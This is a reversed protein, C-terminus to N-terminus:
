MGPVGANNWADLQAAVQLMTARDGSVLANNVMTRAETLSVPYIVFEAAVNLGAAVGARLLKRAAGKATKNDDSFSLAMLLTCNGLSYRAAEAYMWRVPDKPHWWNGWLNTHNKWWESTLGQAPCAACASVKTPNFTGVAGLSSSVVVMVLVLAFIWKGYKNLYKM